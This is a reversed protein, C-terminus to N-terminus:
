LGVGVKEEGTDGEEAEAADDQKDDQKVDQKVDPEAAVVAEEVVGHEQEYNALVEDLNYRSRQNVFFNRVHSEAKNGLVEAIARFNKGYERVGQVALLSEENTWRPNVKLASQLLLLCTVTLYM